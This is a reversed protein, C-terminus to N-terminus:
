FLITLYLTCKCVSDDGEDLTLHEDFEDCIDFQPDEEFSDWWLGAEALQYLKPNMARSQKEDGDKDDDTMKETVNEAQKKVGSAREERFYM